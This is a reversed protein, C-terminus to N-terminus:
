AGWEILNVKHKFDGWTLGVHHFELLDRGITADLGRSVLDEGDGRRVEM